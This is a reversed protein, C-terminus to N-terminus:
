SRTAQELALDIDVARFPVACRRECPHGYGAPKSVFRARCGAASRRGGRRRLVSFSGSGGFTSRTPTTSSPRARIAAAFVSRGSTMTDSMVIGFRFPISARSSSFFDIWPESSESSAGPRRRHACPRSAPRTAEDYCEAGSSSIMATRAASSPRVDIVGIRCALEPLSAGRGQAPRRGAADSVSRWRSIRRESPRPSEAALLHRLLEVDRLPRHLELTRHHFCQRALVLASIRDEGDLM